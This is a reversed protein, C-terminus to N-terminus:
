PPPGAAGPRAWRPGGLGGWGGKGGGGHCFVLGRAPPGVAGGGGSAVVLDAGVAVITRRQFAMGDWGWGRRRRRCLGGAGDHRKAGICEHARRRGAFTAM